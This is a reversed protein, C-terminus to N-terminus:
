PRNKGVHLVLTDDPIVEDYQDFLIGTIEVSSEDCPIPTVKTKEENMEVCHLPELAASDDHLGAEELSRRLAARARSTSETEDKGSILSVGHGDTHAYRAGTNIPYVKKYVWGAEELIIRLDDALQLSDEDRFAKMDYKQGAFHRLRLVLMSKILPEMRRPTLSETIQAQLDNSEIHAMVAAAITVLGGLVSFLYARRKKDHTLRGVIASIITFVGGAVSVVVLLTM